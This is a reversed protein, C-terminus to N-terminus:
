GRSRTSPARSRGPTSSRRTTRITSRTRRSPAEPCRGPGTGDATPRCVTIVKGDDSISRITRLENHGPYWDTTGVVIQDGPQWDKVPRDLTLQTRADNLGDLRGWSSGSLNAWARMEATDLGAETPVPCHDDEGAAIKAGDASQLPLAGKYGFLNLTGGYSVGLVKYGFSTPDFNLKGYHELLYSNPCTVTSDSPYGTCKDTPATKQRAHTMPTPGRATSSHRRLRAGRPLLPAREANPATQCQIGPTPSPVRGEDSPDTGYIGITLTGGQKGFPNCASGAQLTGGKEVLMSPFRLDVVKGTDVIYLGGKTKNTRNELINVYDRFVYTGGATIKYCKDIRTPPADTPLETCDPPVYDPCGAVPAPEVTLLVTQHLQVMKHCEAGDPRCAQFTIEFTRRALAEPPSVTVLGTDQNLTVYPKLAAETIARYTIRPIGSAALQVTLTQGAVVAQDGVPEFVLGQLQGLAIQAAADPRVVTIRVTQSSSASGDSATFTVELPQELQGADSAFLCFIGSDPLFYANEPVGAAALTVPQGEPDTATVPLLLDSGLVVTHDGIPALVPPQNEPQATATPPPLATPTRATDDSDDDGCGALVSAGVLVLVLLFRRSAAGIYAPSVGALSKGATLM